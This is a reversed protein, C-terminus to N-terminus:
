CLKNVGFNPINGSRTTGIGEGTEVMALRPDVEERNSAITM